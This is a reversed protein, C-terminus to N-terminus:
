IHILSLHQGEESLVEWITRGGSYLAVERGLTASAGIWNPQAHWTHLKLEMGAEVLLQVSQLGGAAARGHLEAEGSSLAIVHQTSCSFEIPHLGYQEFAGTTSRRSESGAWDSDGFVVYKEPVDQAQYIWELESHVGPVQGSADDADLRPEYARSHCKAGDESRVPM